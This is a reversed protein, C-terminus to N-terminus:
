LDVDLLNECICFEQDAEALMLREGRKVVFMVYHIKGLQLFPSEHMENICIEASIQVDDLCYVQFKNGLADIGERYLGYVRIMNAFHNYEFCVNVGGDSLYEDSLYSINQLMKNEEVPKLPTQQVSFLTFQTHIKFEVSRGAECLVGYQDYLNIHEADVIKFFCPQPDASFYEDKDCSVFGFITTIVVFVRFFLNKM